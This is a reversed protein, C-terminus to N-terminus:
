TIKFKVPFHFHHCKVIFFIFDRKEIDLTFLSGNIIIDLTKFAEMYSFFCSYFNLKSIGDPYKRFVKEYQQNEFLTLPFHNEPLFVPDLSRESGRIDISGYPM